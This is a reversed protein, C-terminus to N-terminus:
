RKTALTFQVTVLVKFPVVQEEVVYPSWRWQKVAEMAAADFLSHSRVVRINIPAGERDVIVDLIVVGQVREKLAMEPYIPDVKV